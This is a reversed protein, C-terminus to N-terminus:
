LTAVYKITIGASSSNLREARRESLYVLFSNV